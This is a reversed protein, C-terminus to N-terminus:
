DRELGRKSVEKRTLTSQEEKSNTYTFSWMTEGSKSNSVAELVAPKPDTGARITVWVKDGGASPTSNFQDLPSHCFTSSTPFSRLFLFNL